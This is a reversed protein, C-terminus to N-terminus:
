FQFHLPSGELRNRTLLALTEAMFTQVFHDVRYLNGFGSLKNEFLFHRSLTQNGGENKEFILQCM